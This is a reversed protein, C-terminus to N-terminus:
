PYTVAVIGIHTVLGLVVAKPTFAVPMWADIATHGNRVLRRAAKAARLGARQMREPLAILRVVWSFPPAACLPNKSFAFWAMIAACGTFIAMVNVPIGQVVRTSIEHPEAAYAVPSPMTTPTLRTPAAVWCMPMGEALRMVTSDLTRLTM